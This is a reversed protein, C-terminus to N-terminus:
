EVTSEAPSVSSNSPQNEASVSTEAKPKNEAPKPSEGQPKTTKPMVNTKQPTKKKVTKKKVTKKSVTKSTVKKPNPKTVSPKVPSVNKPTTTKLPIGLCLNLNARLCSEMTSTNPYGGPFNSTAIHKAKLDKSLQLTINQGSQLNDICYAPKKGKLRKKIDIWTKPTIRDPIPYSALVHFGFYQLLSKNTECCIVTKGSLKKAKDKIAIDLNKIKGTTISVNNNYYNANTSDIYRLNKNIVHLAQIYYKPILINKDKCVIVTKPVNLKKIYPEFGHCFLIDAEKAKKITAPTIEVHGPCSSLAVVNTVTVSNKGVDKVACELLTSTVLVRCNAFSILSLSILFLIFITKKM